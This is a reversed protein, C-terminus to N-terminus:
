KEADHSHRAGRFLEIENKVDNLGTMKPLNPRKPCHFGFLFHISSLAARLFYVVAVLM